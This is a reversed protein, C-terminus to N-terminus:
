ACGICIELSCSEAPLYAVQQRCPRWLVLPSRSRTKAFTISPKPPWWNQPEVFVCANNYLSESADHWWGRFRHRKLTSSNLLIHGQLRHTFHWPRCTRLSQLKRNGVFRSASKSDLQIRSSPGGTEHKNSDTAVYEWSRGSCDQHETQLRPQM